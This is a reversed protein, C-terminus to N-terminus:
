RKNDASASDSADHQGADTNDGISQVGVDHQIDVDGSSSIKDISNHDVAQISDDIESASVFGFGIILVALSLGILTFKNM